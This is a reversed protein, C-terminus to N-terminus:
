FDVTRMRIFPQDPMIYISFSVNYGQCNFWKVPSVGEITLINVSEVGHM